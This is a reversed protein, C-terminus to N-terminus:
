NNYVFENMNLLVLCFAELAKRRADIAQAAKQTGAADARIQREQKDLFELTAQAEDARPPRGLAMAFAREVRDHAVPRAEAALRAAFYGAQEYVFAGNLFALAQPGTTSVTRRECSNATDPADLLELEPVALSRKAFIYISRRSQEGDDSKGWGEGPRSQGELVERPLAPYFSAGGMRLNLRGSVALISDRVVEADLRRQRWRWLLADSPDVRAAKPAFASSRRYTQSLVILRHLPKLRWGSAVLESALWDLLEPHSPPDGMVGYDSSSAVIGQGFHYQWVRNVIVRAVLPNEPSTLWHALWLRRGTTRTCQRPQEPQRTALVTPVGPLAVAGARTPDGRKFVHTLPPNPGDESWIYAHPPAPPRGAKIEAIREDLPKLAAKVEDPAISRVATELQDAFYWVLNREPPTRKLADIQLAKIAEPPLSIRKGALKGDKSPEVPGLLRDIEPRVLGEIRAWAQSLEAEWRALRGRYAALEADTGVPRDMEIRGEQPRQLPEFVALMRYYDVQSFPEFKHDHCRACRITIGLFATAATGMVDDLQDYRDVKPDAPEDDWTGLRLFTTAIQSEANSGDVEDGALQEIVFRDYPKDRNLADVVYDRYRWANPKAGDREYGNTEAYRVLDLWHRAWREGYQPRALLEDVLKAVAAPSQDQVFARVQDPTPPLGVLDLYFRRCLTPRDAEEVPRVRLGAMKAMVFRDIPNCSWAPESVEPLKPRRVPQFAWHEQKAEANDPPAATTDAVLSLVLGLHILGFVRRTFKM